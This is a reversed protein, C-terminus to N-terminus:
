VAAPFFNVYYAWVGFSCPTINSLYGVNTPDKVYTYYGMSDGGADWTLACLGNVMDGDAFSYAQGKFAYTKWRDCDIAWGSPYRLSEVEDDDDTFGDVTLVIGLTQEVKDAPIIGIQGLYDRLGLSTGKLSNFLRLKLAMLRITAEDISVMAPLAEHYDPDYTDRRTIYTYIDMGEEYDFDVAVSIGFADCNYSLYGGAAYSYITKPDINSHYFRNDTFESQVARDLADYRDSVIEGPNIFRTFELISRACYYTSEIKIVALNFEPEIEFGFNYITELMLRYADLPTISSKMSTGFETGTFSSCFNSFTLTFADLDAVTQFHSKMADFRIADVVDRILSEDEMGNAFLDAVADEEISPYVHGNNAFIGAICHHLTPIVITKTASKDIVKGDISFAPNRGPFVLNGKKDYNLEVTPEKGPNPYYSDIALNYYYRFYVNSYSIIQDKLPTYYDTLFDKWSSNASLYNNLLSQKGLQELESQITQIQSAIGDIKREIEALKDAISSLASLINESPTGLGDIGILKGFSSKAESFDGSYLGYGIQGINTAAAIVADADSTTNSQTNDFASQEVMSKITRYSQAESQTVTGTGGGPALSQDFTYRVAEKATVVSAGDYWNSVLGSLSSDDFLNVEPLVINAMGERMTSTFAVFECRITTVDVVSLGLLATEVDPITVILNKNRPDELLRAANDALGDIVHCSQLKIDAYGRCEQGNHRYLTVKSKTGFHMLDIHLDAGVGSPLAEPAIRIAVNDLLEQAIEADLVKPLTLRFRFSSFDDALEIMELSYREADSVSFYPYENTNVKGMYDEKVMGEEHNLVMNTLAVTFDIKNGEDVLRYSSGDIKAERTLIDVSASLYVGAESSEKALGVYGMGSKVKGRTEIRLSNDKVHTFAVKLEDFAGSLRVMRESISDSLEINNGVLTFTIDEQGEFITEECTLPPFTSAYDHQYDQFYEREVFHAYLSINEYVPKSFDYLEGAGNESNDYWGLFIWDVREPDEPQEVPQGDEVELHYYLNGTPGYFFVSHTKAREKSESSSEVPEESSEVPEESSEVPEENSEVPEESSKAPQSSNEERSQESSVPEPSISPTSASSVGGSCSALALAALALLLPKYKAM